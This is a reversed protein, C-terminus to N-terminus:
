VTKSNCTECRGFLALHNTVVQFQNEHEIQSFFRSVTQDGITQVRGRGQCILHHHHDGGVAEYVAAGTGMDSVSIKGALTMRELARFVM